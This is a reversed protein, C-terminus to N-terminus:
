QVVKAMAWRRLVAFVGMGALLLALILLGLGTLAPVRSPPGPDGTVVFAMDLSQHPTVPETLEVWGFGGNYFADSDFHDLSTKWGWKPVDTRHIELWYIVGEEQYFWRPEPIIVNYQYYMQHDDASYFGSCPDYWYEARSGSDIPVVVVSPDAVDVDYWWLLEGPTSPVGPGQSYIRFRFTGLFEEPANGQLAGWFHLDKIYGTEICEFDDAVRCTDASKVDYGKFNEVQYSINPLQPFHMKYDDEPNWDAMGPGSAFALAAIVLVILNKRM